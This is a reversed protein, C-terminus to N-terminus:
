EESKVPAISGKTRLKKRIVEEIVDAARQPRSYLEDSTEAYDLANRVMQPLEAGTLIKQLEENFIEQKFPEPIVVGAKAKEIYCAYGCTGSCMVPLGAALSEMLITGTAEDVAPHVMLDSALLLQPVDKRGGLFIIQKEINLKKALKVFHDTKAEKGVVLYFTKNRIDEPLAAVATIVRDVGKRFYGSGVEILVKDSDSFGFTKRTENRIEKANAPRKRDVSIGAPMLHFREDQTLYHRQYEKKQRESLYLIQINLNKDFVARELETFVKYRPTLRYLFGREAYGKEMVCNDGAFYVDLGEIRNVGFVADVPNIRLDKKLYDSFFKANAHSTLGKRPVIRVEFGDPIDGQWDFTYVRIKCGRRQCEQAMQLCDRELGGYPFYKFICVAIEM